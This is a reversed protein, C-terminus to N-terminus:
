RSAERAPADTRPREAPAREDGVLRGDELRLIRDGWRAVAPNHTACVVTFGTAAHLRAVVDLVGLANPWDLNGTPEDLLLLGPENVLARAICARQREGGSLQSPLHELRAGLGVAELGARAEAADAVSHFHQALMVNELASLYPVMHHQQFVFGVHSRRFRTAGGADLAALDTGGVVVRGGTPADMAGLLHLLTSKGSGSPGVLSVWSGAALEAALPHLAVTDGYRKEVASLTVAHGPM